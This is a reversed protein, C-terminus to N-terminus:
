GWGRRLFAHKAFECHSGRDSCSQGERGCRHRAVTAVTTAMMVAAMMVTAMMVMPVMVMPVMVMTMVVMVMAVMMMMMMAVVMMMMVVVVVVVMVAVAVATPFIVTVAANPVAPRVIGVSFPGAPGPIVIVLLVDENATVVVISCPELRSSILPAGASLL